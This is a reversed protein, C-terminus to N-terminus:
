SVLKKARINPADLLTVNEVALMKEIEMSLGQALPIRIAKLRGIVFIALGLGSIDRRLELKLSM